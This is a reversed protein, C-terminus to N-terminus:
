EWGNAVSQCGENTQFMTKDVPTDLDKKTHVGKANTKAKVKVQANAQPAAKAKGKAMGTLQLVKPPM